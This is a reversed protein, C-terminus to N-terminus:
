ETDIITVIDTGPPETLSGFVTSDIPIGIVMKKSTDIEVGVFKSARNIGEQVTLTYQRMPYKTGIDVAEFDSDDLLAYPKGDIMVNDCSFIWNLRQLAWDPIGGDKGFFLEWVRYPRSSLVTPNMRQDRYATMMKSPDFASFLAEVRFSFKIKTEFLVDGHFRSNFYEFLLTDPHSEAVEFPETIMKRTGGLVLELWYIGPPVNALSFHNEYVSFGPLFKNIRRQTANQTLLINEECDILRLSISSFNSEYQTRIVDHVTWKQFYPVSREFSRIQNSFLYDDMHRSEYQPLHSYERDYFTVPNLFPIICQNAM